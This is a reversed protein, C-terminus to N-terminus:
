GPVADDANEQAPAAAEDSNEEGSESEAAKYIELANVIEEGAAQLAAEEPSLKEKAIEKGEPEKGANAGTEPEVPFDPLLATIDTSTLSMTSVAVGAKAGGPKSVEKVLAAGMRGCLEAGTHIIKRVQPHSLLAVLQIVALLSTIYRMM